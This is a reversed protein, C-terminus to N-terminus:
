FSWLFLRFFKVISPFSPLNNVNLSGSLKVLQMSVKGAYLFIIFGLFVNHCVLSSRWWSLNLKYTETTIFVLLENLKFLLHMWRTLSLWLYHSIIFGLICILLVVSFFLRLLWRWCLTFFVKGTLTWYLLKMNFFSLSNSCTRRSNWRPIWRWVFNLIFVLACELAIFIKWLHKM